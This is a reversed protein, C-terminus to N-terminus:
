QHWQVTYLARNCISVNTKGRLFMEKYRTVAGRYTTGFDMFEKMSQLLVENVFEDSVTDAVKLNNDIM